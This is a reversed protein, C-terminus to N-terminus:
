VGGIGRLIDLSGYQVLEEFFGRAVGASVATVVLTIGLLMLISVTSEIGQRRGKASDRNRTRAVATHVRAESRTSLSSQLPLTWAHVKQSSTIM